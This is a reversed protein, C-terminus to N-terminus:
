AFFEELTVDPHILFCTGGWPSRGEINVSEECHKVYVRPADRLASRQTMSNIREKKEVDAM